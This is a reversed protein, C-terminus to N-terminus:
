KEIISRLCYWYDKEKKNITSTSYKEINFKGDDAWLLISSSMEWLILLIIAINEKQQGERIPSNGNQTIFRWKLEKKKEAVVFSSVPSYIMWFFLYSRQRNHRILHKKHKHGEWSFYFLIQILAQASNMMQKSKHLWSFFANNFLYGSVRPSPDLQLGNWDMIWSLLVLLWDFTLCDFLLVSVYKQLATHDISIVACFINLRFFGWIFLYACM